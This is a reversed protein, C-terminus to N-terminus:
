LKLGLTGNLGLHSALRARVFLLPVIVLHTCESPAISHTTSRAVAGGEADRAWHPATAIATRRNGALVARLRDGRMSRHRAAVLERRQRRHFAVVVHRLARNGHTLVRHRAKGGCSHAATSAARALLLASARSFSCFCGAADRVPSRIHSEHTAMSSPRFATTRWGPLLRAQTCRPLWKEPLSVSFPRYLSSFTARHALFRSMKAASIQKTGTLTLPFWQASMHTSM